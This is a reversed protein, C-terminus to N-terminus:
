LLEISLALEDLSIDWLELSRIGFIDMCEIESAFIMSRYDILLLTRSERSFSIPTFLYSILISFLEDETM